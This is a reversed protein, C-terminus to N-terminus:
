TMLWSVLCKRGRAQVARQIERERRQQETVDRLGVTLVVTGGVELKSITAEAPFEEGNKRLGVVTAIRSGENSTGIPPGARFRSRAGPAIERLREPMLIALSRGLVERRSYGFIREAGDNFLTIRQEEDISIIANDSISIIGSFKAESLRLAEEARNRETM